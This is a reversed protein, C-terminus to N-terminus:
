ERKWIARWVTRDTMWEVPALDDTLLPAADAWSAVRPWREALAFARVEAPLAELGIEEPAEHVTAILLTNSATRADTERVLNFVSGLTRAIADVVERDHGNRGVNVMFVGGPRLSERVGIFFERTALHFPVYPFQFADLIIVDFSGPRLLAERNIFSRADEIVLEVGSFDIGLAERGAELMVSDLEVGVLRSEPWLSRYLAAVTGGGMGLALVDRPRQAAFAPAMAYWGWISRLPLAGNDFTFSQIAYGENTLLRREGNRRVVRISAHTSERSWIIEGDAETEAVASVFAPLLFPVACFAVHLAGRLELAVVAAGLTLAAAGLDFTATTGLLPIFFLGAGLTGVLSGATSAASFRGAHRGVDGSAGGCAGHILLPSIAGLLVMPVAMLSAGGLAALALAGFAGSHFRALSGALLPPTIRALLSFLLASGLLLAMLWRGPAGRRSAWGGLLGGVSLSGLVVAILVAWISTSTGYYPAFLRGLAIEGNLTALGALFAVALRARNSRRSLSM